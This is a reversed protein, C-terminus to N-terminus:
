KVVTITTSASEPGLTATIRHTGETPRAFWRGDRQEIRLTPCTWTDAAPQAKLLLEQSGPLDPDLRITLGPVPHVIRLTSPPAEGCTVQNGLWNERTGIWAKYDAPLIARKKSDYDATTAVPPLNSAFLPEERSLRSPPSQPGLRKGIRPDIPVRVIGEPDDYWTVPWHRQLHLFIEHFIPGAGTVGSINQMPKGEFNGAWVGVTYEPTFGLAWNDRYSTSTGTKAAVPFPLRLPSHLGFTIARAQNDHLIDAVWWCSHQSLVRMPTPTADDARLTWPLYDGQRALTAYANTLELLRVPANGITLGLGYHAAPETLTSLGMQQLKDVLTQAGGVSQLVRVASINLSNGLAYRYTMPGYVKHDYNEPRYLGTDTQFEIPLDMAISAPTAGREFALAYTFPKLASGPSHPAWAGNIQGGNEAFWDRSGVLALVRGTRNEIVVAAAHEVRKSRLGTLKQSIITEVQSQLESVITTHVTSEGNATQQLLDIAHPAMFGGSFRQLTIPEAMAIDYDDRDLSDHWLMQRLIHKQRPLVTEPNRFPNLRGPAQPLAALFASEADSLDKMPKHFYGDAAAECGTFLNGYSVRNLYAELIQEKSWTMELQRAQLAETLKIRWTRKESTSSIKILQQTITSAGSRVRGSTLNMWAARAIALLDIGGHQYFRHDEAALTALILPKPVRSLPVTEVTRQGAENLLHRLPTGDKALYVTGAQPPHDLAPPLTVQWPLGYWVLLWLGLLALSIRVTKIRLLSM